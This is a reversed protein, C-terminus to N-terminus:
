RPSSRRRHRAGSTTEGVVKGAACSRSATPSRWCRTSSTASSCSRRAPRACADPPQRVAGPNGATHARGDARRPDPDRRRPVAGEPDRRAAGRRRLSGGRGHARTSAPVRLIRRARRHARQRRSSTSCEGARTAWSSTRPSPSRIWWSSTSTCWGSATRSRSRTAVRDEVRQRAGLDARRRGSVHRLPRADADVQGRRERRDARPGRRARAGLIVDDNAVVGPFRKTIRELVVLPPAGNRGAGDDSTM